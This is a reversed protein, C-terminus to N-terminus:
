EEGKLMITSGAKGNCVDTLDGDTKYGCIAIKGVGTKLAEVSSRVKPIMGGDIVGEEIAKEVAYQDMEKIVKGEKLIGPLDLIFILREAKLASAIHLAAEDANINLAQGGERCAPSAIVSIFGGGSLLQIIRPDSSTVKGTRNKNENEPEAPKGTILGGDSGSIGAAPIGANRFRRVIQKNVKGSLVMDVIEMEEPSTRRIGDKFVPEIELRRTLRSVANGGGHVLVFSWSDSLSGMERILADLAEAEELARGGIKIVAYPKQGNVNETKNLGSM